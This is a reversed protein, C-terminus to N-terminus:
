GSRRAAESLEAVLTRVASAAAEGGGAAHIAQVVATGVVVGDVHPAASAVDGPTKIGFGLAVPLGTQDGVRRARRAAAALDIGKAGTVGTLSVYYIFGTAVSGALEVRWDNSTPAVLPVYDLGAAVAPGRLPECEEPPLDVVLFGDIGAEKAEAVMREEGRALIPNYYGFLLLPVDTHQRASRVAQLLGDLTTGRALSRESAQQIALGDAAPDSFPMGIEIVDAGAEAAVTILRATTELDPDGACMYIVLAAREEARARDFAERIRGM